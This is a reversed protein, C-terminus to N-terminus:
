PPGTQGRANSLLNSENFQNGIIVLTNSMAQATLMEQQTELINIMVIYMQSNFLLIQRLVIGIEESAIKKFWTDSDSADQMLKIQLNSLNFNNKANTYLQSMVYSNFTQVASITKYYNLYSQQADRTGSWNRAPYVHTIAQGSANETYKLASDIPNGNADKEPNSFYPKNLMTAYTIQNAFPLTTETPLPVKGNQSFFDNLFTTQVDLQQKQNNVLGNSYNGFDSQLTATADTNDTQMWALAMQTLPSLYQPINNVAALSKYTYDAIESLYYNAECQTCATFFDARVSPVSLLTIGAAARMLIGYAKLRTKFM